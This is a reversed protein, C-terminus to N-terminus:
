KTNFSPAFDTVQNEEYGELYDSTFLDSQNWDRDCHTIGYWLTGGAGDIVDFHLIMADGSGPQLFPYALQRGEKGFYISKVNSAAYEVSSFEPASYSFLTLSLCFISLSLLKIRTFIKM